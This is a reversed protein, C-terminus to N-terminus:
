FQNSSTFLHMLSKAAKVSLPTQQQKTLLNIKEQDRIPTTMMNVITTDNHVRQNNITTPISSDVCTNYSKSFTEDNQQLMQKKLSVEKKSPTRYNGQSVVLKRRKSSKRNKNKQKREIPTNYQRKLDAFKIDSQQTKYKYYAFQLRVKLRKSIDSYNKIPHIPLSQSRILLPEAGLLPLHSHRNTNNIVTRQRYPHEDITNTRNILSQISPLTTMSKTATAATTTTNNATALFNSGIMELKNMRSNSYDSLPFRYNQLSM